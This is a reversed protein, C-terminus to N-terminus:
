QAGGGKAHCFAMALVAQQFVRRAEPEPLGGRAVVYEWLDGDQAYEM